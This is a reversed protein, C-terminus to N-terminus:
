RAGEILDLLEGGGEVRERFMDHVARTRERFVALEEDTLHNVAIGAAELNGLLAPTMSRILRRGSETEQQRNSLLVAQVDEPLGDFWDRNYLIVAPQYIHNSVTWSDVGQYWSSAFAWLPTNDFGQVQGTNLSTIVEPVAIRVPNGGLARYMEEHIWNEQVRM